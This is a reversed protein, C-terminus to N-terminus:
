NVPHNLQMVKSWAQVFDNVFREKANDYAYVEAVARLETNSGFILDVPTATFKVEDSKRDLGEYIGPAGNKQWHLYSVSPCAHYFPHYLHLRLHIGGTFMVFAVRKMRGTQEPRDENLKSSLDIVEGASTFYFGSLQVSDTLLTTSSCLRPGPRYLTM